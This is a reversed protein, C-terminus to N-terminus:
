LHKEAPSLDRFNHISINLFHLSLLIDLTKSSEQQNGLFYYALGLAGIAKAYRDISGATKLGDLHQIQQEPSLKGTKFEALTREELSPTNAIFLTYCFSSFDFAAINILEVSGFLPFYNFPLQDIALRASLLAISFVAPRAFQQRQLKADTAAAQLAEPIEIPDDSYAFLSVSFLCGVILCSICIRPVCVAENYAAHM